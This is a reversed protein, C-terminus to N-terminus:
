NYKITQEKVSGQLFQVLLNTTQDLAHNIKEQEDPNFKQLVYKEAPTNVEKNSGVGVRVRVFREDKIHDIISQLGKHGGASGEERVRIAGLPLDIDDCIVWLDDSGIKYYSMIKKVAEGSLNMYTEPKALIIRDQGIGGKQTIRAHFQSVLRWAIYRNDQAFKDLAMFGVNHRTNKYKADPNGLGVILKM